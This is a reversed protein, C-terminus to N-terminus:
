YMLIAKQKGHEIQYMEPHPSKSQEDLQVEGQLQAEIPSVM